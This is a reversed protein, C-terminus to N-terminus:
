ADKAEFVVAASRRRRAARFCVYTKTGGDLMPYILTLTSATSSWTGVNDSGGQDFKGDCKLATTTRSNVCRVGDTVWPDTFGNCTWNRDCVEARAREV